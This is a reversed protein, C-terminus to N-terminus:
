KLKSAEKSLKESLEMISVLDTRTKIAVEPDVVNLNGFIKSSVFESIAKDLEVILIKVTKTKEEKEKPKGEKKAITKAFLNADLRHANKNIGQASTEILSYDITKGTTYAKIIAAESIQINEFDEKIQPFKSQIETNNPEYSGEAKAAERKVREIEVSRMKIGNDGLNKDGAGAPTERQAFVNSFACVTFIFFISVIFNKMENDPYISSM